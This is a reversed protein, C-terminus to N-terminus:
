IFRYFHPIFDGVFRRSICENSNVWCQFRQTSNQICTSENFNEDLGLYCDNFGDNVRYYSISRKEVPCYFVSSNSNNIRIKSTCGSFIRLVSSM